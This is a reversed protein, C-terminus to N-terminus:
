LFSLGHEFALARNRSGTNELLTKITIMKEELNKILNYWM